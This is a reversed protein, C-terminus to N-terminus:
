LSVYTAVRLNGNDYFALATYENDIPHVFICTKEEKAESVNYKQFYSDISKPFFRV